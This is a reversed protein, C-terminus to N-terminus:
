KRGCVPAAQGRATPRGAPSTRRRHGPAPEGAPLSPFTTRRVDARPEHKDDRSPRSAAFIGKARPGSKVVGLIGRCPSLGDSGGFATFDINASIETAAHRGITSYSQVD